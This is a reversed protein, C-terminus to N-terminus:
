PRSGHECHICDEDAIDNAQSCSWCTWVRAVADVPGQYGAALQVQLDEDNLFRHLLSETTDSNGGFKTLYGATAARTSVDADSFRVAVALPDTALHCAAFVAWRQAHPRMAALDDILTASLEDDTAKMSVLFALLGLWGYPSTLAARLTARQEADIVALSKMRPATSHNEYALIQLRRLEEEGDDAAHAVQAALTDADLDNVDCYLRALRVLTSRGPDANLLRLEVAPAEGVNMLQYLGFFERCWWAAGASIQAPVGIDVLAIPLASPEDFIASRRWREAAKETVTYSLGRRVIEGEIESVYRDPIWSNFEALGDVLDQPLEQLIRVARLVADPRGSLM